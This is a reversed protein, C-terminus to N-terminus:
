AIRASDIKAMGLNMELRAQKIRKLLLLAARAAPRRAVRFDAGPIVANTRGHAEGFWAPAQRARVRM